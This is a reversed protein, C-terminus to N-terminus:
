KVCHLTQKKVRCNCMWSMILEKNKIKIRKKIKKLYGWLIPLIPRLMHTAQLIITYKQIQSNHLQQFLCQLIINVACFMSLIKPHKFGMTSINLIHSLRRSCIKSIDSMLNSADDMCFETQPQNGRKMTRVERDINIIKSHNYWKSKKELHQM